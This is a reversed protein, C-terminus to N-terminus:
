GYGLRLFTRMPTRRSTLVGSLELRSPSAPVNGVACVAGSAEAIMVPTGDFSLHSVVGPGKWLYFVLGVDRGLLIGELIESIELATTFMRLRSGSGRETIDPSCGAM